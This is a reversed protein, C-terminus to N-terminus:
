SHNDGSPTNVSPLSKGGNRPPLDWTKRNYTVDQGQKAAEARKDIARYLAILAVNDMASSATPFPADNMDVTAYVQWNNSVKYIRFAFQKAAMIRMTSPTSPNMVEGSAADRKETDIDSVALTSDGLQVVCSYFFGTSKARPVCALSSATEEEPTKATDLTAGLPAFSDNAALYAPVYTTDAAVKEIHWSLKPIVVYASDTPASAGISPSSSPSVSPTCAALPTLALMVAAVSAKMSDKAILETDFFRSRPIAEFGTYVICIRPM